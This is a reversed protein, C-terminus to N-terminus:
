GRWARKPYPYVESGPWPRKDRSWGQLISIYNARDFATPDAVRCHSLRGRIAEITAIDRADLWDKLGNVLNHMHGIGYRLLASTTMVTDAGALLFKIVEEATEVGSAAALSGRVRGALIGIWLLPLRIESRTSLELDRRLSLSALDIDPQYFRNFLVLGDAGARVAAAAFHPLSTFFPSLKVALPLGLASRVAGIVDLHRAEVEAATCQPDTELAYCNLELADAGADVLYRAYHLWEGPRVANVSAIVPIDLALKAAQVLEAHREAGGPGLPDAPLYGAAEPHSDGGQELTHHLAQEDALVEEEFLSPLVVAAVGADELRRLTSLRGTLPGATAILPNRLPLGLYTTSLDSM